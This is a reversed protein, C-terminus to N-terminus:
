FFFLSSVLIVSLLLLFFLSWLLLLLLLLLLFFFLFVINLLPLGSRALGVQVFTVDSAASQIVGRIARGCHSSGCGARQWLWGGKQGAEGRRAAALCLGTRGGSENKATDLAGSIEMTGIERLSLWYMLVKKHRPTYTHTETHTRALRENYLCLNLREKREREREREREKREREGGGEEERRRRM